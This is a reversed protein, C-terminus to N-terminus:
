APRPDAEATYETIDTMTLVVEDTWDFPDASLRVRVWRGDKHRIWNIM